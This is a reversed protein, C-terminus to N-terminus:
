PGEMKAGDKLYITIPGGNHKWLSPIGLIGLNTFSRRQHPPALGGPFHRRRWVASLRASGSVTQGPYEEVFNVNVGKEFTVHYRIAPAVAEVDIADIVDMIM